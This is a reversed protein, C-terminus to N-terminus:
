IRAFFFLDLSSSSFSYSPPPVDVVAVVDILFLPSADGAVILLLQSWQILIQQKREAVAGQMQKNQTYKDIM